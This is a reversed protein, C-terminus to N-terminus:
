YSSTQLSDLSWSLFLLWFLMASLLPTLRRFHEGVSGLSSSSSAVGSCVLEGGRERSLSFLFDVFINTAVVIKTACGILRSNYQRLEIPACYLEVLNKCAPSSGLGTTVASSLFSM